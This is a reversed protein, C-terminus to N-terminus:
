WSFYGLLARPASNSRIRNVRALPEMAKISQNEEVGLEDNRLINSATIIQTVPACTSFVSQTPILSLPESGVRLVNISTADRLPSSLRLWLRHRFHWFHPPSPLLDRNAQWPMAIIMTATPLHYAGQIFMQGRPPYCKALSLTYM